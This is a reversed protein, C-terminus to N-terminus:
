ENEDDPDCRQLAIRNYKNLSPRSFVSLVATEFLVVVIFAFAKYESTKVKPSTDEHKM